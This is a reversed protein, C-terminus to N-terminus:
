QIKKTEKRKIKATNTKDNCCGGVMRNICCGEVIEKDKQKKEM